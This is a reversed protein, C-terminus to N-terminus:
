PHVPSTVPIDKVDDFEDAYVSSANNLLFLSFIIAVVVIFKKIVHM